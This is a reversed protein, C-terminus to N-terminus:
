DPQPNRLGIRRYSTVPQFFLIQHKVPAQPSRPIGHHERLSPVHCRARRRPRYALHRVSPHPELEPIPRRVRRTHQDLSLPSHRRDLLLLLLRKGQASQRTMENCHLQLLSKSRYSPPKTFLATRNPKASATATKQPPDIGACVFCVGVSSSDSFKFDIPPARM